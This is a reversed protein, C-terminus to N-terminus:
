VAYYGVLFSFRFPSLLDSMDTACLSSPPNAFGCPSDSNVVVKQPMWKEPSPGQQSALLADAADTKELLIIFGRWFQHAKRSRLNTQFGQSAWHETFTM